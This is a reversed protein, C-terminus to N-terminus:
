SHTKHLFSQLKIYSDINDPKYSVIYNIVYFCFLIKHSVFFQWRYFGM